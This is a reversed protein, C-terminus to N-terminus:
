IEARCWGWAYDVVCCVFRRGQLVSIRGVQLVFDLRVSIQRTWVAACYLSKDVSCCLSIFIHNALKACGFGGQVVSMPPPIQGQVVPVHLRRSPSPLSGGQLVPSLLCLRGVACAVFTPSAWVALAASCCADVRNAHATYGAGCHPAPHQKPSLTTPFSLLTRVLTLLM